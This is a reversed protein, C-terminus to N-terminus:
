TQTAVDSHSEICPSENSGGSLQLLASAAAEANLRALCTKKRRILRRKTKVPSPLFDPFLPDDSKRGSVFHASCLWSHQIPLWKERKLAAVWKLRPDPDAPFHYFNLMNRKVSCNSCGVAAYSNVM